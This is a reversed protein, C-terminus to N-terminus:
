PDQDGPNPTVKQLASVLDRLAEVIDARRGPPVHELLQAFRARSADEVERAVRAGKRTLRIPRARADQSSPSATIHGSEALRAATRSTTSKDVGLRTALTSSLM